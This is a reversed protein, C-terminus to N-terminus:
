RPWASPASSCGLASSSRRQIKGICDGASPVVESPPGAKPIPQVEMRDLGGDRQCYVWTGAPRNQEYWGKIRLGVPQPGLYGFVTSSPWREVYPGQLGGDPLECWWRIPNVAQRGWPSTGSPCALYDPDFDEPNPPPPETPGYRCVVLIALCLAVPLYARMLRENGVVARAMKAKAAQM